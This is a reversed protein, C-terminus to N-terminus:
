RKQNQNFNAGTSIYSASSEKVIIIIIVMNLIIRESLRVM